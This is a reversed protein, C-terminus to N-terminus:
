FCPNGTHKHVLSLALSDVKNNSSTLLEWSQAEAENTRWMHVREPNQYKKITSPKGFKRNRTKDNHQPIIINSHLQKSIPQQNMPWIRHFKRALHNHTECFLKEHHQIWKQTTRVQCKRISSYSSLLPKHIATHIVLSCPAKCSCYGQFQIKFTTILESLIIM